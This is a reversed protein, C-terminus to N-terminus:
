NHYALQSGTNAQFIVHRMFLCRSKRRYSIFDELKEAQKRKREKSAVSAKKFSGICKPLIVFQEVKSISSATSYKYQCHCYCLYYYYCYKWCQKREYLKSRLWLLWRYFRIKLRQSFQNSKAKIWRSNCKIIYFGSALRFM